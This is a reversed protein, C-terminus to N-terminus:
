YLEHESPYFDPSWLAPHVDSFFGVITSRNGSIVPLVEHVYGHSPFLLLDGAKPKYRFDLYPFDIEGGEYNDTLYIISSFKIFGSDKTDEHMGSGGEYTWTGLQSDVCYIEKQPINFVEKIKESIRYSQEVNIRFAALIQNPVVLVRPNDRWREKTKTELVNLAEAIEEKSIFNSFVRIKEKTPEM